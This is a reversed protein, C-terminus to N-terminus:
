GPAPRTVPRDLRDALSRLWYALAPMAGRSARQQALRRQRRATSIEDDLRVSELGILL